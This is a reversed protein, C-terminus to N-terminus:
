GIKLEFKKAAVTLLILTLIILFIAETWLVSLSSGKLMIGRIILLFYRAPVFYSVWQLVKPMNKIEFIFGSLMVSPLMTTLQAAMMAVQQTRVLTSILIGISLAAIIYIVGFLFLLWVSGVFPVGFHFMAFLIILVGDLLALGIYPIVKGVIIQVATVPSTLLQEMTGTEKERAITISTLLASIMMLISAILGPVFFHSSKLDPNYLVQQSIVVGPPEAGPPLKEELFQKLIIGTYNYSAAATNADAGDTLLGLEYHRLYTLASAFGPRITLIINADGSRLTKEPDSIHPASPPEVFYGSNYFKRALERSAQTKDLDLIALKINKIDLNIAYGYLFTMLIPMLIAITLSRSDRLIHRMEKIAIFKIKNVPM